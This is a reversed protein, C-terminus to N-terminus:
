LLFNVKLLYIIKQYINKKLEPVYDNLYTNSNIKSYTENYLNWEGEPNKSAIHQTFFVQNEPFENVINEIYKKVENM